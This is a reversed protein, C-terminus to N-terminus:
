KVRTLEHLWNKFAYRQYLDSLTNIHPATAVLSEATLPLDIACDITVLQEILPLQPLTARLSEGVKGTVNDAQAILTALNDYQSLWKVATKPGCGPVGPINDSTDGVLTLYDVIREPPVGFKQIVGQRDLVLNNMTNILTIHANVLQALDKDGTSIVVKLGHQEGQKALTGIVDDAEIGDIQILPLGLAQIIHFLPQVQASLEDPMAPRHAKYDALLGHRTTPGKPDFVVGIYDPQYDQILKKLMNIVGYMAGTPEGQPNTLPPLAFFARYLYSSGDVLVLTKMPNVEAILLLLDVM